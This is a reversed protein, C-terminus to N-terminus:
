RECGFRCHCTIGRVSRGNVVIPSAYICLDNAPAPPPFFISMDVDVRSGSVPIQVLAHYPIGLAHKLGFFSKRVDLDQLPLASVYQHLVVTVKLFPYTRTSSHTRADEQLLVVEPVPLTLGFEQNVSLQLLVLAIM